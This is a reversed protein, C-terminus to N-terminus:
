HQGSAREHEWQFCLNYGDPDRVYLQKMGYPAVRPEQVDVGKTKLHRYAADVDPCAFYLCTDDHAASRRRDPETPREHAEYMGNLMLDADGLKLYCWDVDDGAVDDSTAKVEFGLADRYFALATPMDFVLILACVGRVEIAV